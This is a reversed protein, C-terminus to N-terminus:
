LEAHKDGLPHPKNQTHQLNLKKLRRWLTTQSMGLYDAVQQKDGNFMEMAHAVMELQKAVILSDSEIKTPIALEPAVDFLMATIPESSDAMLLSACLRELINELERVNGPWPYNSIPDKIQDVIDDANLSISNRSFLLSLKHKAICIIDERRNRLAPININLVNLRYFLDHRFTGKEILEHLPKNTAAVIKIDSYIEQNGGVQRYCREQLFRLIKAQQDFSLESVEDLFLVGKQAEHILGKRGGKRSGTYAGQAHGFLEGEFLETPIASCNLAVFAGNAYTSAAHISRAILEKGTGSEGTILVNSASIAFYSVKKLVKAMADSEFRLLGGTQRVIDQEAVTVKSPVQIDPEFSLLLSNSAKGETVDTVYHRGHFNFEQKTPQDSRNLLFHSAFSLCTQQFEDNSNNSLEFQISAGRSAIVQSRAVDVYVVPISEQSVLWSFFSGQINQSVSVKAASLAAEIADKCSQPSYYMFSKIGNQAALDCVLSAGVIATDKDTELLYFQERALKATAYTHHEISINLATELLPVLSHHPDYTILKIKKCAKAAKSTAAIIDADSVPLAIVPTKINNQLYAANSGASIVVDPQIEDIHKNVEIISGVIADIIHFDAIDNYFATMTGFLQSFEKHGFVLVKIRDTQNVSFMDSKVKNKNTVVIGSSLSM